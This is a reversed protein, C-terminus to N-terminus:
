EIMFRWMAEKAQSIGIRPTTTTEDASVPKGVILRLPSTRLDHGNLRKDIRFAQCVKAPGNTLEIGGRGHRNDLMVDQGELPEIARILVAAGEGEEGVVVNCCYHMGYTFYVYLHGAPGFMVATRETKGKYSHSAADTQDYAEVEIIKGRLVQGDIERVLECGLLRRAATVVDTKLFALEDM